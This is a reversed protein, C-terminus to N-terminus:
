EGNVVKIQDTHTVDIHIQHYYKKTRKENAYFWIVVRKATGIVEITKNVFYKDPSSGYKDSLFKNAKPSITITLNRRDRYDLETNLLSGVKGQKTERVGSARIPLVFTGKIGKPHVEEVMSIIQMVDSPKAAYVPSCFVVMAILFIIGILKNM